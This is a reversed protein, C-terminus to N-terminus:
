ICNSRGAVTKARGLIPNGEAVSTESMQLILRGDLHIQRTAAM